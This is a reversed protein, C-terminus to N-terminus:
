KASVMTIETCGSGTIVKPPESVVQRSDDIVIEAEAGVPTEYRQLLPMVVVETVKVGALAPRSVILMVTVSASVQAM